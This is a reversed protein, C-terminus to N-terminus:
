PCETLNAAKMVAYYGFASIDAIPDDLWYTLEPFSIAVDDACLEVEHVPMNLHKALAKAANREDFPEGGSLRRHIGADRRSIPSLDDRCHCELRTWWELAIGIPVDSRVILSSITELEHRIAEVPNDTRAPVDEMHWYCWQKQEWSHADITLIHAAPLKHVAQIPTMPEPVYGYHFYLNM